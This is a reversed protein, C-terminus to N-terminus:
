RGPSGGSRDVWDMPPELAPPTIGAQPFPRGRLRYRQKELKRLEQRRAEVVSAIWRQGHEVPRGNDARATAYSLLLNKLPAEKLGPEFGALWTGLDSEVRRLSGSRWATAGGAWSDIFWLRRPPTARPPTTDELRPTVLANRPYLDGHLFHLAHMRGVERGLERCLESQM